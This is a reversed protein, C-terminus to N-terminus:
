ACEERAEAGGYGAPASPLREVVGPEGGPASALAAEIARTLDELPTPWPVMGTRGNLEDQPATCLTLVPMGVAAPAAAIARLFGEQTEERLSPTLLLLDVGALQEQANTAFASPEEIVKTAYSAGGLLL